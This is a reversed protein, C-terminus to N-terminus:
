DKSTTSKYAARCPPNELITAELRDITYSEIIPMEISYEVLPTINQIVATFTEQKQIDIKDKKLPLPMCCKKTLILIFTALLFVLALSLIFILFIM